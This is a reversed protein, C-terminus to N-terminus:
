TLNLGHKEFQAALNFNILKHRYYRKYVKTKDKANGHATTEAIPQGQFEVVYYKESEETPGEM